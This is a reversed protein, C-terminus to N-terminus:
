HGRLNVSGIRNNTLFTQLVQSYNRVPVPARSSLKASVKRSEGEIVRSWGASFSSELMTSELQTLSAIWNNYPSTPPVSDLEERQNNAWLTLSRNSHPEGSKFCGSENWDSLKCVEDRSQKEISEMGGVRKVLTGFSYQELNSNGISQNNHANCIPRTRNGITM